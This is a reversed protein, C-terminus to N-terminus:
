KDGEFVVFIDEDNIIRYVTQEEEDVRDEGSYKAILVLDGVKCWPEGDGFIKFANHGMAVVYAEQMAHKEAELTKNDNIKVIISGVKEIKEKEPDVLKVIVRHGCPKATKLTRM